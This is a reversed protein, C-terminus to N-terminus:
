GTWMGVSLYLGLIFIPAEKTEQRAKIMLAQYFGLLFMMDQQYSWWRGSYCGGCELFEKNIKILAEYIGRM